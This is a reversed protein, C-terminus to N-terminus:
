GEGAQQPDIKPQESVRMAVPFRGSRGDRWETYAAEGRAVIAEVTSTGWYPRPLGDHCRPANRAAWFGGRYRVLEGGAARADDLCAVMTATLAKPTM